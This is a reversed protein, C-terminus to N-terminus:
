SPSPANVPPESGPMAVISSSTPIPKNATTTHIGLTKADAQLSFGEERLLDRFRGTEPPSEIEQFSRTM